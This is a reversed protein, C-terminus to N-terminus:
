PLTSLLAQPWLGVEGRHRRSSSGAANAKPLHLFGPLDECLFGPHPCKERGSTLPSHAISSAGEPGAGWGPLHSSALTPNLATFVLWRGSPVETQSVRGLSIIDRIVAGTAGPEDDTEGM